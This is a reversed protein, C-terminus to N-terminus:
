KNNCGFKKKLTVFQNLYQKDNASNYRALSYELNLKRLITTDFKDILVAMSSDLKKILWREKSWSEDSDLFLSDDKFTYKFLVSPGRYQEYEFYGYVTDGFEILNFDQIKSCSWWTGRILTTDFKSVSTPKPINKQESSTCSIFYIVLILFLYKM